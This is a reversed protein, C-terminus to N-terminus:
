LKMSEFQNESHSEGVEDFVLAFVEAGAFRLLHSESFLLQIAQLLQDFLVSILEGLGNPLIQSSYSVGSAKSYELRSM